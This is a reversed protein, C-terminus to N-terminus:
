CEEVKDFGNLTRATQKICVLILNGMSAELQM